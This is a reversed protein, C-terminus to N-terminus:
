NETTFINGITDVFTGIPSLLYTSTALILNNPNPPTNAGSGAITIIIDKVQNYNRIKNTNTEEININGLTDGYIQGSKNIQASTGPGNDGKSTVVDKGIITM